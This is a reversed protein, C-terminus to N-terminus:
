VRLSPPDNPFLRVPQEETEVALKEMITYHLLKEMNGWDTVLGHEVPHNLRLFGRRRVAEHGFFTDIQIKVPVKFRGVISPFVASPETGTALGAKIEYCGNDIVVAPKDTM